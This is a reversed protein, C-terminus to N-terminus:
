YKSKRLDNPKENPLPEKGKKGFPNAQSFPNVRYGANGFPKYNVGFDNEDVSSDPKTNDRCLPSMGDVDRFFLKWEGITGTVLYVTKKLVVQATYSGVREANFIDAPNVQSHIAHVFHSNTSATRLSIVNKSMGFETNAFTTLAFSVFAVIMVLKTTKM